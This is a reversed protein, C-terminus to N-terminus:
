EINLVHLEALAPEALGVYQAEYKMRYVKYEQLINNTFM